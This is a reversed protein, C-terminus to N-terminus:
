FYRWVETHFLSVVIKPEAMFSHMLKKHVATIKGINIIKPTLLNGAIHRLLKSVKLHKSQPKQCPLNKVDCWNDRETIKGGPDQMKLKFIENELSRSGM